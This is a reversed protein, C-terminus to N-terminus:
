EIACETENAQHQLGDAVIHIEIDKSPTNARITGDNVTVEGERDWLMKPNLLLEDGASHRIPTILVYMQDNKAASQVRMSIDQWEVVLESYSGDYSHPGPIVHEKSGYNSRGILAEKLTDGCQHNVLQLNIAFCEPLLVHSLVSRTNWTNWGKSLRANLETFEKGTYENRTNESNCSTIFLLSIFILFQIKMYRMNM